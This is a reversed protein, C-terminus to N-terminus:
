VIRIGYDELDAHRHAMTLSEARQRTIVETGVKLTRLTKPKTKNATRQKFVNKKWLIRVKVFSDQMNMLINTQEGGRIM